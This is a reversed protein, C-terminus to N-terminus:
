TSRKTMSDIQDDRTAASAARRALERASTLGDQLHAIRQANAERGGYRMELYTTIAQVLTARDEEICDHSEDIRSAFRTLSEGPAIALGCAALYALMRVFVAQHASAVATVPPVPRRRRAYVSRLAVVAVVLFLFTWPIDRWSFGISSDKMPESEAERERASELGRYERPTPDVVFWSGDRMPIEAWAHAHQAGFGRRLAGDTDFTGPELLLADRASTEIERAAEAIAGAYLGTAVRAPIGRGRLLLAAASAFHMCYGSKQEFFDLLPVGHVGSPDSLVYSFSGDFIELLAALTAEISAGEPLDALMKEFARTRFAEPLQLLEADFDAAIDGLELRSAFTTVLKCVRGDFERRAVVSKRDVQVPVPATIEVLGAPLPVFSELTALVTLIASRRGGDSRSFHHVTDTVYRETVRQWESAGPVVFAGVRLYLAGPLPLGDRPELFCLPEKGMRVDSQDLRELFFREDVGTVKRKRRENRGVDAAETPEPPDDSAYGLRDFTTTTAIATLALALTILSGRAIRSRATRTSAIRISKGIKVRLDREIQLAIGLLAVIAILHVWPISDTRMLLGTLVLLTTISAVVLVDHHRARVALYFLIPVLLLSLAAVATPAGNLETAISVLVVQLVFVAAYRLRSSIAPLHWGLLTAPLALAVIWSPPLYRAPQISTATLATLVLSVRLALTTRRVLVSDYARSGPHIDTM